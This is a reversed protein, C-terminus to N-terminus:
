ETVVASAGAVADSSEDEYAGTVEGMEIRFTGRETIEITSLGVTGDGPGYVDVYGTMGEDSMREGFRAVGRVGEITAIGGMIAWVFGAGEGSTAAMISGITAPDIVEKLLVTWFGEAEEARRFAATQRATDEHTERLSACGSMLMVVVLFMVVIRQSM